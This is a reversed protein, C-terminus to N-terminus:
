GNNKEKNPAEEPYIETYQRGNNASGSVLILIISAIIVILIRM